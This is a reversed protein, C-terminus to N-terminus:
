QLKELKAMKSSKAATTVDCRKLYREGLNTNFEGEHLADYRVCIAANQAIKRAMKGRQSQATDSILKCNYIFGYKPTKQKAKLAKFLTAEAGIIQITSAPAKALKLLSGAKGLLKAGILPGVIQCFNPAIKEM